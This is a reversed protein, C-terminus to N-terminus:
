KINDLFMQEINSGTYKFKAEPRNDYPKHDLVDEMCLVDGPYLRLLSILQEYRFLLSEGCWFFEQETSAILTSRNDRRWEKTTKALVLSNTQETTNTKMDVNINNRDSIKIAKGDLLNKYKINLINRSNTNQNLISRNVM